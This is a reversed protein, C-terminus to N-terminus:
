FAEVASMSAVLYLGLPLGTLTTKGSTDTEKTHKTGANGRVYEALRVEGPIGGTASALIKELAGSMEETTYYAKGGIMRAEPAVGSQAAMELFGTELDSFYSGAESGDAIMEIGAIRLAGFRVGQMGENKVSSSALGQTDFTAASNEKIKCLTLSARRATDIVAAGDDGACTVPLLLMSLAALCAFATNRLNRKKM